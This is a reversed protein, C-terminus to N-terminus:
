LCALRSKSIPGASKRNAPDADTLVPVDLRDHNSDILIGFGSQTIPIIKQVLGVADALAIDNRSQSCRGDIVSVGFERSSDRLSVVAFDVRLQAHSPNARFFENARVKSYSLAKLSYPWDRQFFKSSV